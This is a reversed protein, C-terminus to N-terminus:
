VSVAPETRREGRLRHVGSYAKVPALPPAPPREGPGDVQTVVEAQERQTQAPQKEQNRLRQRQRNLSGAFHNLERGRIELRRSEEAKGSELCALREALQEEQQRCQEQCQRWRARIQAEVEEQRRALEQEAQQVRDQFAAFEQNLTERDWALEQEARKLAQVRRDFDAAGVAVAAAPDPRLVPGYRLRRRLTLALRILRRRSQELRKLRHEEAAPDPGAGAGAPLHVEFTFPGVQLVDGDDIRCVQQLIAGNLRTGSRSACDRVYFGDPRRTIVCHLNSVDPAVLGIDCGHARGLIIVDRDLPRYRRTTNGYTVILTPQTEDLTDTHGNLM